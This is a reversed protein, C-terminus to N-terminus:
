RGFNTSTIVHKPTYNQIFQGLASKLIKFNGSDFKSSRSMSLLLYLLTDNLKKLSLNILFANVIRGM